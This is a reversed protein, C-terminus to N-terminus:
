ATRRSGGLRTRALDAYAADLRRNTGDLFRPIPKVGKGAAITFQVTRGPGPARAPGPWARPGLLLGAPATIAKRHRM